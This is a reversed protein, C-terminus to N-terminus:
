PLPGAKYHTSVVLVGFLDGGPQGAVDPELRDVGSRQADRAVCLRECQEHGLERVFAVGPGLQRVTEFPAPVCGDGGASVVLEAESRTSRCRPRGHFRRARLPMM